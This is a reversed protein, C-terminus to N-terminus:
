FRYNMPNETLCKNFFELPKEIYTVCIFLISPHISIDFGYASNNRHNSLKELYLDIYYNQWNLLHEALCHIINVKFITAWKRDEMYSISSDIDSEFIGYVM